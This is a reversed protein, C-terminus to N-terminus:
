LGRLSPLYTYIYIYISNFYTCMVDDIQTHSLSLSLSLSLSHTHTHTHTHLQAFIVYPSNSHNHHTYGMVTRTRQIETTPYVSENYMAEYAFQEIEPVEAKRTRITGNFCGSVNTSNFTFVFNIM